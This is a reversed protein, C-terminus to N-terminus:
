KRWESAKNIENMGKNVSYGCWIFFVMVVVIFPKIPHTNVLLFLNIEVMIILFLIICRMINNILVEKQRTM